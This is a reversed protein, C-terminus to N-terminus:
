DKVQNAQDFNSEFNVKYYQAYHEKLDEPMDASDCELKEGAVQSDLQVFSCFGDSSATMLM